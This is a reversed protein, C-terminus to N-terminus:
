GTLSPRRLTIEREITREEVDDPLDDSWVKFKFPLKREEGHPPMKAQAFAFLLRDGKRTQREVERILYQAPHRSQDSALLEEPTTMPGTKAPDDNRSEGSQTVWRFFDRDLDAPILFNAGVDNAAKDGSNHIGMEWRIGAVPQESELVSGDELAPSDVYLTLEFDARANLQRMFEQHETNAIDLSRHSIRWAAFAVALSLFAVALGIATITSDGGCGKVCEVSQVGLFLM